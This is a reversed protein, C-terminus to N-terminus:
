KSVKPLEANAYYALATTEGSRFANWAHLCKVYMERFAVPKRNKTTPGTAMSASRLYRALARSPANRDPDSEDRVAEWFDGAVRPCRDYTAMMATTVPSRLLHKSLSNPGFTVTKVIGQLWKVFDTRDLLQEAREAQPVKRLEADPWRLFAASTVTMNILKPSVGRLESITSAFSLNIDSNNRSALNSDYTNYLNGVDQLTDCSWREIIVFFNEPLKPLKSLMTSTHKGNVRYTANTEYCVVSAWVVPRFAGANLIREYVLLRRESLPRDYPAPEMNVFQDVLSRTVRVTKPSESMKWAM